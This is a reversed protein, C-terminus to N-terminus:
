NGTSSSVELLKKSVRLMVESYYLAEKTNMTEKNLAEAKQAFEIYKQMLETYKVLMTMDSPNYDKMFECYEDMVAEYSDLFEKLDPSIEINSNADDKKENNENPDNKNSNSQEEQNQTIQEEENKPHSESLKDKNSGCAASLMVVAIIVILKILKGKKM